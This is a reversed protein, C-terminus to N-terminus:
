TKRDRDEGPHVDNASRSGRLAAHVFTGRAVVRDHPSSSFGSVRRQARLARRRECDDGRGEPLAELASHRRARRSGQCTTREDADGIDRTALPELDTRGALPGNRRAPPEQMDQEVTANM